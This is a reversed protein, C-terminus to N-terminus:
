KKRIIRVGGTRTDQEGFCKLVYYYDGDPLPRGNMTGNWDNNYANSEYVTHGSRDFIVISCGDVEQGDKTILFYDNQGNGDPTFMNPVKILSAFSHTVVKVILQDTSMASDNDYVTLEYTYEGPALNDLKLTDSYTISNDVTPGAVMQWQYSSVLGDDDSAQGIVERGNVPYELELDEGANATPPQNDPPMASIYVTVRDISTAGKDDTVMLAFDYQGALLGSLKLTSTNQGDMAIQDEGSVLEWKYTLPQNEPDTGNGYIFVTDEPLTVYIDSGADATPSQNVGAPNVTVIINDSDTAGQDDEVRLRFVYVGAQINKLILLSDTSAATTVPGSIKVWSYKVIKGDPDYGSGILAISDLPLTTVMDSGANAQPPQNANDPHVQITVYDSGTAGADDTVILQYQYTGVAMNSLLVASSDAKSM